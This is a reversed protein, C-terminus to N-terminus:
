PIAQYERWLAAIMGDVRRAARLSEDYRKVHAWKDTEGFSVFLVRPRKTRVHRVVAEFLMTDPTIDHWRRPGRYWRELTPDAAGMAVLPPDWGSFVPLRSRQINLIAAFLEWTGFASVRGKLGPRTNLWELVSVNPNPRADNTFIRPDPAGTLMENYGPYSFKFGNTAIM